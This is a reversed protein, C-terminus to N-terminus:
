PHLRGSVSGGAQLRENRELIQRETKQGIGKVSRARGAECAAKLDDITEIGLAAHLAAIKALGLKPIRSLELAGPPMRERLKVLAQSQGTLYLESITAALGPGIGHLETLRREDVLRALDASLRELVRAGREYARARFPEEGLLALVSSMERLARAVGLRDLRVPDTTM